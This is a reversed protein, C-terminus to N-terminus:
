LADGIRTVLAISETVGLPGRTLRKALDEGDIWEMALFAADPGIEGHAVYRVVAPHDLGALIKAERLFRSRDRPGDVVKLAVNTHNERDIARYIKAQAGAACAEVIEFREAVLEGVRM